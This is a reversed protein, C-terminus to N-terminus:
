FAKKVKTSVNSMDFFPGMHEFFLVPCIGPSYWLRIKNNLICVVNRNMIQFLSMEFATRVPIGHVIILVEMSPEPVYCSSSCRKIQSVLSLGIETILMAKTGALWLHRM